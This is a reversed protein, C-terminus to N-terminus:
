KSQSNESTWVDKWTNWLRFNYVEELEELDSREFDM